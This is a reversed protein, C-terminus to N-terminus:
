TECIGKEPYDQNRKGEAQDLQTKRGSYEQIPLLFAGNGIRPRADNRRAGSSPNCDRRVIKLLHYGQEDIKMGNTAIAFLCRVNQPSRDM